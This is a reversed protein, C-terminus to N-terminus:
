LAIKKREFTSFLAYFFPNQLSFFLSHNRGLCHLLSVSVQGSLKSLEFTEEFVRQFPGRIYSVVHDKLSNLAEVRKQNTFWDGLKFDPIVISDLINASNDVSGNNSADASDEILPSYYSKSSFIKAFESNAIYEVNNILETFFISKDEYYSLPPALKELIESKM